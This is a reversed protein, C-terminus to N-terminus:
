AFLLFPTAELTLACYAFSAGRGVQANIDIDITATTGPTWQGGTGQPINFERTVLTGTNSVLGGGPSLPIQVGATTVTFTVLCNFDVALRTILKQPQKTGVVLPISLRYIQPLTSVNLLNLVPENQLSLLREQWNGDSAPLEVAVVLDGPAGVVTGTRAVVLTAVGTPPIVFINTPGPQRVLPAAVNAALPGQAAPATSHSLLTTAGSRIQYQVYNLPDSAQPATSVVSAGLIRAPLGGFAMTQSLNAALDAVPLSRLAVGGPRSGPPRIAGAFPATATFNIRHDQPQVQLSTPQNFQSPQLPVSGGPYQIWGLVTADTFNSQPALGPLLSLLAPSGGLVRADQLRYIVTYSTSFSSNPVLLTKIQDELILVGDPLLCTGPTISLQDAAAVSFDLGALRGPAMLNSVMTPLDGTDILDGFV